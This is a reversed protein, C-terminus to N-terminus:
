RDVDTKLKKLHHIISFRNLNLEQEGTGFVSGYIIDIINRAKKLLDDVLECDLAQQDITMHSIMKDKFKKLKNINNSDTERVFNLKQMAKEMLQNDQIIEKIDGYDNYYKFVADIKIDSKQRLNVEGFINFVLCVIRYYFDNIAIDFFRLLNDPMERQKNNKYDILNEIQVIYDFRLCAENVESALYKVFNYFENDNKIKKM